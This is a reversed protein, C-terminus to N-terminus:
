LLWAHKMAQTATIRAEPDVTLFKSILDKAGTSLQSWEPGATCVQGAMIKNRICGGENTFPPRGTLLIYMVVGVSWMDVTECYGEGTLIEPSIYYDTGCTTYARKRQRKRSAQNMKESYSTSKRLRPKEEYSDLVKAIGFDTLRIDNRSSSSVLLINELKIDRHVVGREHLYSCSDLLSTIIKKTDEESFKKDQLLRDYLEGGTALDLILLLENETEFFDHLGIIGQHQISTLIAIEDKLQQQKSVAYKNIVKCAFSVGSFRNKALFVQSYTGHGIVGGLEYEKHFDNETKLGNRNMGQTIYDVETFQFHSSLTLTQAMKDNTQSDQQPCKTLLGCVPSSNLGLKLTKNSPKTESYLKARSLKLKRFNLLGGEFDGTM